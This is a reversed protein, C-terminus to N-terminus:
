IKSFDIENLRQVGVAYFAIQKKIDENHLPIMSIFLLGEIM